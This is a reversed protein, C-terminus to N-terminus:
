YLIILILLFLNKFRDIKNKLSKRTKKKESNLNVIGNEILKKILSKSHAYWSFYKKTNTIGNNSYDIWKDKDTIINKIARSIDETKSVDVLKGNKCYKIIDRPGGNDTAVIPLGSAAAELLTLGFPEIYASNVFVGKLSAAYRYLEPVEYEIEHKKPIAMHGYLDFKDMLLLMDTLTNKESADKDSIDKRIGAFIALNAIYQLECDRGYAEILGDINKRTEPRCIALILPKNPENLFRTLENKISARAQLCKEHETIDILDPQDIYYYPFFKDLDIGPPIVKFKGYKYNKYLSYQGEIEQNTSVVIFAARKLIENETEIRKEMNYIKNIKDTPMGAQELKQKKPIGLSHGTHIFPINLYKSLELAVYGADAYHSHILDPHINKQKLKKMTNDVFEDLYNWLKEKKIYRATGCRVRLISVKENIKEEEVSYDLSVRKDKIYRTLVYVKGIEKVKNLEKVYEFVYKTQGGTDSDKGLELCNGRFLGHINIVLIEPKDDFM